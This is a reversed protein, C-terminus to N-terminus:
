QHGAASPHIRAGCWNRWMKRYANEVALTFERGNCLPSNQMQERLSRRLQALETTNNALRTAINIYDGCSSAVLSPLGIAHLVSAGIRGAHREGFLTVVPIGMWLSECSITHGNWPFTDLTIDIDEYFGLHRLGAPLQRYKEPIENWLDVRGLDVGRKVFKQELAERVGGKLLHRFIRLRSTPNADLVQCWLDLVSDNIKFLNSFSAFTVHGVRSSPLTTIEPAATPPMYCSFGTKLYVLKETYFEQDAPPDTLEDSFRYDVSSLGTTNAYGLYSVQVPAPKATFVRLRSDATHGALDVLIDVGDARIADILQVDSWGCTNRWKPVFGKMRETVEDPRMVEAYCVVEFESSEHFQLLPEVFYGVAHTRFDPSVYGILLRREPDDDNQHIPGAPLKHAQEWKRHEDLMQESSYDLLYNLCLLLNSNAGAYCPDLDMARRYCAIAETPRGKAKLINGLNNHGEPVSPDLQLARRQDTEAQDLEGISRYANSLNGLIRADNSNFNLVNRYQVIAEEIKGLRHLTTALRKFAAVHNPVLQIVKQYSATAQVFQGRSELIDGVQFHAEAFQPSLAVARGFCNLADVERKKAKLVSGLAFHAQALNPDVALAKRANSEALDLNNFQINLWSMMLWADVHNPSSAVVKQNCAYSEKLDGKLRFINGLLFLAQSNGPKLKIAHRLCAIGDDFTGLEGHITGLMTWPWPDRGSLECIRVFLDRAETLRGAKLQAMAQQVIKETSSSAM